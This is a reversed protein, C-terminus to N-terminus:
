YPFCECGARDCRCPLARAARFARKAFSAASEVPTLAIAASKYYQAHAYTLTKNGYCTRWWVIKKSFDCGPHKRATRVAILAVCSGRGLQLSPNAFGQTYVQKTITYSSVGQICCPHWASGRPVFKLAACRSKESCYSCMSSLSKSTSRLPSNRRGGTATVVM